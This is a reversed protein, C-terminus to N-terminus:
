ASPISFRKGVEEIMGSFDPLTAPVIIKEIETRDLQEKELLTEALEQHRPAVIPDAIIKDALIQLEARLRSVIKDVGDASACALEPISIVLKDLKALDNDAGSKDGHCGAIGGLAQCAFGLIRISNNVGDQAILDPSTVGKLLRLSVPARHEIQAHLNGGSLVRIRLDILRVPCLRLGYFLLAHGAEHQAAHLKEAVLCNRKKRITERHQLSIPLKISGTRIPYLKRLRVHDEFYEFNWTEFGVSDTRIESDALILGSPEVTLFCHSHRAQDAANKRADNRM